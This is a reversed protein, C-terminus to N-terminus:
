ASSTAPANSGGRVEHLEERLVRRLTAEDLRPPSLALYERLAQNMMTQYGAGQQEARQRFAELVEDDIYLTSRTKGHQPIVAGRTGHRCDDEDKM